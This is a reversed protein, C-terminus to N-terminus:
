PCTYLAEQSPTHNFFVDINSPAVIGLGTQQNEVKCDYFRGRDIACWFNGLRAPPVNFYLIPQFDM